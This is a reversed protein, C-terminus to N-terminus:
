RYMSQVMAAPPLPTAPLTPSPGPSTFGGPERARRRDADTM